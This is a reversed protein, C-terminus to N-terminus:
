LTDMILVLYPASWAGSKVGLLAKYQVTINIQKVSHNRDREIKTTIVFWYLRSNCYICHWFDDLLFDHRPLLYIHIRAITEM